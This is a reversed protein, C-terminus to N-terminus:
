YLFASPRASSELCSADELAEFPLSGATPNEPYALPFAAPTPVPAGADAEAEALQQSARLFAARNRVDRPAGQEGVRQAELAQLEEAPTLRCAASVFARLGIYRTLEAAVNWPCRMTDECGVTALSLKLRCAVADPHMDNACGRLLQWIQREEPALATDSVCSDVLISVSHATNFGSETHKERRM